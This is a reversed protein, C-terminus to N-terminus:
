LGTWKKIPCGKGTFIEKKGPSVDVPAKTILGSKTYCQHYKLYRDSYNALELLFKRTTGLGPDWHGFDFSKSDFSTYPRSGSFDGSFPTLPQTCKQKLYSTLKSLRSDIFSAFSSGHM